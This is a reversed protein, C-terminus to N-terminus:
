TAGVLTPQPGSFLHANVACWDPVSCHRAHGELWQSYSCACEPPSNHMADKPTDSTPTITHMVAGAKPSYGGRDAM